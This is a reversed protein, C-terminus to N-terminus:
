AVATSSQLRERISALSEGDYKGRHIDRHCGHCVPLQKRNLAALYLSFGRVKEGRKRIHRVHHMEVREPNGCIACSDLLRTQTRRPGWNPVADVEEKTKAKKVQILPTNFFCVVRGNPKTFTIHKGYKRFVKAVTLREKRALTKALSYQLVYRAYNLRGVNEALQYYTYWGRMVGNYHDIIHEIPQNVLGSLPAPKGKAMYKTLKKSLDRLPVLLKMNGTNTRITQVVNHPSGTHRLNRRRLRSSAAKFEYGLFRAKETPLHIVQTKERNLELRLEEWLFAAIEEQLHEALTKPGIIGVAVDDAYRLFKVRAYAPDYYAAAPTRLIQENLMRLDRQLTARCSPDAEGQELVHKRAKMLAIRQSNQKRREGQSYQECLAGLKGDLKSLYVNTLIPSIVSGQPTGSYTRYYAWNELYGATLFKRILNIFRDDAIKERLIDLLRFHDVREFCESIDIKLVWKTGVWNRRLSELATHCSRGPRFGHSQDHFMPEYISELILRVCEQVIKDRPSPVGLPRWKGSAKPIYTRRVPTPRYQETRMLAITAEIAELSFGDLTQGDAGPTMNGPKSKLREYAMVYLSPNYLLRYLGRNVWDPNTRNKEHLIAVADCAETM